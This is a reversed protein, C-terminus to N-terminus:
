ISDVTLRVLIEEGTACERLMSDLVQQRELQNSGLFESVDAIPTGVPKINGWPCCHLGSEWYPASIILGRETAIGWRNVGSSFQFQGLQYLKAWKPMPTRWDPAILHRNTLALGDRPIADPDNLFLPYVEDEWRGGVDLFNLERCRYTYYRYHRQRQNKLIECTGDPKVIWAVNDYSIFGAFRENTKKNTFLAYTLSLTHVYNQM